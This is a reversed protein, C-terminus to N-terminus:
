LNAAQHAVGEVHDFSNVMACGRPKSISALASTATGVVVRPFQEGAVLGGSCVAAVVGEGLEFQRGLDGAGHDSKRAARVRDSDAIQELRLILINVANLVGHRSPGTQARLRRAPRRDRGAGPHLLQRSGKGEARMRCVPWAQRASDEDCSPYYTLRDQGQDSRDQEIERRSTARRSQQECGRDAARDEGREDLAPMPVKM